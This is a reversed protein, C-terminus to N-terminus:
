EAFIKDTVVMAAIPFLVMFGLIHLINIWSIIGYSLIAGLCQIFLAAIVLKLLFRVQCFRKINRVEKPDIPHYQLIEVVARSKQNESYLDYVQTRYYLVLYTNICIWPPVWSESEEALFVDQAPILCIMMLIFVGIVAMVWSLPRTVGKNIFKEFFLKAKQKESNM